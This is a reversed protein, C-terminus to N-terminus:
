RGNRALMADIEEEIASDDGDALAEARERYLREEADDGSPNELEIRHQRLVVRREAANLEVDLMELHKKKWALEYTSDGYKRQAALQQRADVYGVEVRVYEEQRRLEAVDYRHQADRIANARDVRRIAVENAYIEPLEQLQYAAKQKRAYSEMAKSQADFLRTEADTWAALANITRAQYGAEWRTLMSTLPGGTHVGPPRVTVSVTQPRQSVQQTVRVPPLIEQKSM